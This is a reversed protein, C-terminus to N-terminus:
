EGIGIAISIENPVCTIRQGPTIIPPHAKCIGHACPSAVVVLRQNAVVIRTEGLTGEVIYRGDEHLPIANVRVNKHFVEATRSFSPIVNVFRLLVPDSQMRGLELDDHIQKLAAYFLSAGDRYDRLTNQEFLLIGGPFVGNLRSQKLRYFKGSFHEPLTEEAIRDADDPRDTLISVDLRVPDFQKRIPEPVTKHARDRLRLFGLRMFERRDMSM